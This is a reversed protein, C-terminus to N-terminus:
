LKSIASSTLTSWTKMDYDAIQPRDEFCMTYAEAEPRPTEEIM